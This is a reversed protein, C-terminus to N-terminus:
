VIAARVRQTCVILYMSLVVLLVSSEVGCRSGLQGQWVGTIKVYGLIQYRILYIINEVIGELYGRGSKSLRYIIRSSNLDRSEELLKLYVLM